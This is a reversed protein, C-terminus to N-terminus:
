WTATSDSFSTLPQYQHRYISEFHGVKYIILDDLDIKGDKLQQGTTTLYEHIEAIVDETAKGSLIQDVVKGSVNKSFQCYERRVMDLGKVDRKQSGDSFVKMAAYKKKQLLLVRAFVADVDIELLHYKENVHKKFDNAIKMAEPYTTVNSNVFVSDTDGYVVDLSLSGAVEKTQTLTERGKFTVLSALPRAYFRSGAFGLCGYMSNATLKLAQEKIGYQMMKIQTNTPDKMLNKVQKRRGVLTAILRPLVGQPVERPPVEPIADDDMNESREVTTFDINYEQIISPYLSNFDMVMVYTDWLGRKPEFVLGGQFKNRKPEPAAVINGHVDTITKKISRTSAKGQTKDPCIYKLRHFEHLLIYENREARAGTLTRNWSNGALSTLQKTLPLLQVKATIAMQAFADMQLHRMFHLLRDPSLAYGDFYAATDDPDIEERTFGLHTGCMETLSWTVSDIMSRAGESSLDAVLRGALVKANSYWAKKIVLATRRIRGIRSWHDAKLEKMRTLLVELTTGLFDHGVIVDPDTRQIQILTLNLMERETKVPKVKLQQAREEFHPPFREGLPRVVTQPTHRLKEVPTPDDINYTEWVASTVALIEQTNQTHNIITRAGLSMVTLPPIEKPASLDTESFPNVNKPDGVQVELRCWSSPKSTVPFCGKINLWCPGMIKRKIVLMEFPSTNTGFAKSFTEGSLSMPLPPQDFGYVVKFWESEGRPVNPQEFAYKRTVKKLAFRGEIGHNRRLRDFEAHVAMPDLQSDTGDDEDDEPDVQRERPLLFVNRQIGTVSVCCSVYKETIKDFAKGILHVTHGQELYDLWYFKLDRETDMDQEANRRKHRREERAKISSDSHEADSDDEMETDEDKALPEFCDVRLRPIYKKEAAAKANIPNGLSDDDLSGTQLSEQLKQWSQREVPRPNKEEIDQSVVPKSEEEIKPKTEAEAKKVSTASGNVVNRRPKANASKNEADQGAMSAMLRSRAKSENAKAQIARDSRVLFDEEEDSLPEDKIKIQDQEDAFSVGKRATTPTSGNDAKVSLRPKKSKDINLMAWLDVSDEDEPSDRSQARSRPLNPTDLLDFNDSSPHAVSSSDHYDAPSSKRKRRSSGRAPPSSDIRMPTEDVTSLLNAMFDDEKAASVQPRYASPRAPPPAKPKSVKSSSKSSKSAPFRHLPM